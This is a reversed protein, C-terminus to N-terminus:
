RRRASAVWADRGVRVPVRMRTAPDAWRSRPTDAAPEEGGGAALLAAIVALDEATPSGSVIRLAPRAPIAESAETAVKDPESPRESVADSLESARESV